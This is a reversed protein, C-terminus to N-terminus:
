TNKYPCLLFKRKVQIESSNTKNIEQTLINRTYGYYIAKQLSLLYTTWSERDFIFLKKM